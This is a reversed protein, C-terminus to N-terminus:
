CILNLALSVFHRFTVVFSFLVFTSYSGLVNGSGTLIGSPVSSQFQHYKRGSALCETGRSCVKFFILKTGIDQIPRPVFLVRANEAGKLVLPSNSVAYVSPM